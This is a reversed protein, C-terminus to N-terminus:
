TELFLLEHDSIEQPYFERETELEANNIVIAFSHNSAPDDEDDVGGNDPPGIGSDIIDFQKVPRLAATRRREDDFWRRIHHWGVSLQRALYAIQKSTM